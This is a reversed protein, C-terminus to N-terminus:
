VGGANLNSTFRRAIERTMEYYPLSQYAQDLGCGQMGCKDRYFEEAQHLAHLGVRGHFGEDYSFQVATRMLVMGIGSYQPEDVFPKVNWPAAELYDVYVLPKGADPDLKAGKGAVQVLLLGQMKGACEIGFCRYALLQLKQSKRGWDWHWHRPVDHTRGERHLNRAAQRRFPGWEKEVEVLVSPALDTQLLANTPTRGNYTLIQIHVASM